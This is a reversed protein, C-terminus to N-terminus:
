HMSAQRLPSSTGAGDRHRAILARLEDRDHYGPDLRELVNGDPGVLLHFPFALAEYDRALPESGLAVPYAIGHERVWAELDVTDPEDVSIALLEVGRESEEAYFANLEPIELVCPACWTAWFDILLYQGRFDALRVRGGGLLGIEFDPAPEALTAKPPAADRSDTDTCGLV